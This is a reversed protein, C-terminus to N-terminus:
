KEELLNKLRQVEDQLQQITNEEYSRMSNIMNLGSIGFILPLILNVSFFIHIFMNDKHELKRLDPYKILESEQYLKNHQVLELNYLFFNNYTLYGSLSIFFFALLRKKNNISKIRSVSRVISM